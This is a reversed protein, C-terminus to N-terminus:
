IGACLTLDPEPQPIQQVARLYRSEWAQRLEARRALVYERADEFSQFSHRGKITKCPHCCAVLNVPTHKGGHAHPVVSDITMILANELSSRADLGCFRCCFHDRELIKFAEAENVPIDMRSQTLMHFPM